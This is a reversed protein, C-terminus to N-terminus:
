NSCLYYNIVELSCLKLYLFSFLSLSFHSSFLLFKKLVSERRKQTNSDVCVCQYFCFSFIINTFSKEIRDSMEIIYVILYFFPPLSYYVEGSSWISYNTKLIYKDCFAASRLRIKSNKDMEGLQRILFNNPYIHM